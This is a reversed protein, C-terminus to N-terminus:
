RVPFRENLLSIRNFSNNTMQGASEFHLGVPIAGEFLFSGSMGPVTDCRHFGLVGGREGIRQCLRDSSLALDEAAQFGLLWLQQATAPDQAPLPIGAQPMENSLFYALDVVTGASRECGSVSIPCTNVLVRTCAGSADLFGDRSLWTVRFSRCDAGEQPLCHGATVGVSRGDKSVVHATCHAAQGSSTSYSLRGTAGVIRARMAQADALASDTLRASDTGTIHPLIGRMFDEHERATSENQLADARRISNSGIIESPASTGEGAVRCAVLAVVFLALLSMRM